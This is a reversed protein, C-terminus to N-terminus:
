FINRYKLSFYLQESSVAMATQVVFDANWYVRLGVGGTAHLGAITLADLDPWVRGTDVFLAGHWELNQRYVASSAMHYRLETNTFFRVNDTFRQTDYGRLSDGGGLGKIRRQAGGIEGYAYLPVSGDLVEFVSRHALNLRETLPWYRADTFTYRRYDIEAFFLALVSNRSTEFSWEHFTGRRPITEDDRTDWDIAMGVFGTPGDRVGDPTGEDLYYARSGRASISPSEGGAVAAVTVPGCVHRMLALIVRPVELVYCYYEEDLFRPSDPDLLAPRRVSDNGKGYYRARIDRKHGLLLSVGFQTGSIRPVTLRVYSDSRNYTSHLSHVTLKYRYPLRRYDTWQVRAGYNWGTHPSYYFIPLGTFGYPVGGVTLQRRRAVWRVADVTQDTAVRPAKALGGPGKEPLGDTAQRADSPPAPGLPVCLSDAGAGPVGASDGPAPTQSWAEPVAWVLLVVPWALRAGCAHRLLRRCRSACSKM